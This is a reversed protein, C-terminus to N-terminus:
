DNLLSDLVRLGDREEPSMELDSAVVGRIADLFQEKHTQPILNPDVSEPEPPSQLWAEAQRSEEEPLELRAIVRRVYSREEETVKLDAWAFSCVFRVLRVREEVTLEKM